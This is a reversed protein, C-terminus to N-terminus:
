RSSSARCSEWGVERWDVGIWELEVIICELVIGVIGCDWLGNMEFHIWEVESLEL